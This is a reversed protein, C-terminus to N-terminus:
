YPRTPESIHILSLDVGAKLLLWGTGGLFGAIVPYPLYRVLNGLQFKGLLYLFGGSIWSSVAIMAVVTVFLDTTTLEASANSVIEVTTIALIAAPVDQPIWISGRWSSFLSTITMSAIAGIVLLAVGYGFFGTLPGLFVLAATALWWPVEVLCLTISNFITNSTRNGTDANAPSNSDSLHM